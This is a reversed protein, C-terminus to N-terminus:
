QSQHNVSTLSKEKYVSVLIALFFAILLSLTFGSIVILLRNPKIKENTIVASEDLSYAVVASFDLDLAKLASITALTGPLDKIWPDDSRRAKLADLARDHEFVHIKERLRNVEVLYEEDNERNKLTEILTTLYKSGQLYLSTVPKDVVTIATNVVKGKQGKQAMAGLTTPYTIDLSKAMALAEGANAIRTSRDAIAKALYASIQEQLLAIEKANEVEIKKITLVRDQRYQERQKAVQRSLIEIKNSILEQFDNQLNVVLRQNVYDAYGNLLGVGIAENEVEINVKLRTPNAVHGGKRDPVPEEIKVKFEKILGALLFSKPENSDSYLKELLNAEYIYEALVNRSRLLKYYSTFIAQQSSPVPNDGGLLIDVAALSSTSGVSPVSVRVTPQYAVPLALALLVSLLAGTIVVILILRWQSYLKSFLDVLSIGEDAQEQLARYIVPQLLEDYSSIKRSKGEATSIAM